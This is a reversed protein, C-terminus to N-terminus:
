RRAVALVSRVRDYRAIHCGNVRSYRASVRRGRVIGAIRGTQPGGYVETCIVDRPLPAFASAPLATLRRCVARHRASPCRLRVTRAPAGGSGDRDHTVRVDARPAAPTAPDASEGCGALALLTLLAARRM